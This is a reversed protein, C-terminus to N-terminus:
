RFLKELVPRIDRGYVSLDDGGTKLFDHTAYINGKPLNGDSPPEASYSKSLLLEGTTNDKIKVNITTSYGDSGDSYTGFYKVTGTFDMIYRAKEPSDALFFVPIDHYIQDILKDAGYKDFSDDIYIGMGLVEIYYTYAYKKYLDESDLFDGISKYLAIADAYIEDKAYRGANIYKAYSASDSFDRLEAFLIYASDFNGTEFDLVASEYKLHKNYMEDADKYGAIHELIYFAKEYLEASMYDLATNYLVANALEAIDANYDKIAILSDVATDPEKRILDRAQLYKITVIYDESDKYQRINEFMEKSAEYERNKMLEVAGSYIRENEDVASTSLDEKPNDACSAFLSLLMSLFIMLFIVKKM